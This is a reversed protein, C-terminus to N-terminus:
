NFRYFNITTSPHQQKTTYVKAYEYKSMDTESNEKTANTSHKITVDCSWYLMVQVRKGNELREGTSSQYQATPHGDVGANYASFSFSRVNASEPYYINSGFTDYYCRGVVNWRGATVTEVTSMMSARSYVPISVYAISFGEKDMSNNAAGATGCFLTMLSVLVLLYALIKKM